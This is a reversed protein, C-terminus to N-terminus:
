KALVEKLHTSEIRKHKRGEDDKKM